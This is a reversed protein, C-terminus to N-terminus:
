LNIEKLIERAEKTQEKKVMLRMPVPGFIFPVANEGQIFYTIGSTDLITKIFAIDAKNQTELVLEYDIFEHAM